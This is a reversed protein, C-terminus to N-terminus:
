QLLLMYPLLCLQNPPQPSNGDIVHREEHNHRPADDRSKVGFQGCQQRGGLVDVEDRGESRHCAVSDLGSEVHIPAVLDILRSRNTGAGEAHPDRDIMMSLM